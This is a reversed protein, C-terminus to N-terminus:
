SKETSAHEHEKMKVAKLEGIDIDQELNGSEWLVDYFKTSGNRNLSHWLVEGVENM